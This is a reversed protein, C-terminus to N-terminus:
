ALFWGMLLAALAAAVVLIAIAVLWTRGPGSDSRKSAPIHFICEVPGIRVRDESSLYSVNTKKGNVYTGNASMLDSLKWRGGENTLQAHMASVGEDKLRIHVNDDNEESGLVWRNSGDSGQLTLTMGASEGSLVQLYPQEIEPVSGIVPVLGATKKQLEDPTLFRTHGELKLDPDAWAGPPRKVTVTDSVITQERPKDAPQVSEASRLYTMDAKPDQVVLNFEVVDFSVRDGNGLATPDTIRQGNVFTGNTSGLDEVWIEGERLSLRAHQRSLEGEQVVVDCDERRGILLDGGVRITDGDHLPELSFQSSEM